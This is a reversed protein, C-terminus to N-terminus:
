DYYSLEKTLSELKEKASGHDKRLNVYKWVRNVADDKTVGRTLKQIIFAKDEFGGMFEAIENFKSTKEPDSTIEWPHLGMAQAIETSAVVDQNPTFEQM